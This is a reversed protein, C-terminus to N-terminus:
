EIFKTPSVLINKLAFRQVYFIEKPNYSLTGFYQDGDINGELVQKTNPGALKKYLTLMGYDKQNSTKISMKLYFPSNVISDIQKITLNKTFEEFDLKAASVFYQKAQGLKLINQSQGTKLNKISFKNEIKSITFGENNPYEQTIETILTPDLRYISKDRWEKEDAFYRIDLYGNFGPIHCIYAEKSGDIMMYTGLMDQTQTGVFYTKILNDGKYIQIKTGLSALDKFITEKSKEPITSKVELLKICNMLLDVRDQFAVYKNNVMWHGPANKTLTTSKGTKEALFIKTISATDSIAFDTLSKSLTGTEQNSYFIWGLGSGILLALLYLLTKNKM